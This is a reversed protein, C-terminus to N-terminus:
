RAQDPADDPTYHATEEPDDRQGSSSPPSTPDQSTSPPRDQRPPHDPRASTRAQRHATREIEARDNRQDARLSTTRLLAGHPVRSLVLLARAQFAADAERHGRIIIKKPDRATQPDCRCGTRGHHDVGCFGPMTVTPGVDGRVLVRAETEDQEDFPHEEARSTSRIATGHGETAGATSTTWFWPCPEPRATNETGSDYEDHRRGCM